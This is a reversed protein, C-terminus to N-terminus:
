LALAWKVQRKVARWDRRSASFTFCEVISVTVTPVPLPSKTIAMASKVCVPAPEIGSRVKDALLFYRGTKKNL